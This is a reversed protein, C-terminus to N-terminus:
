LYGKQVCESYWPDSFDGKVEDCLIVEVEEQTLPTIEEDTQICTEVIEEVSAGQAILRDECNPTGRADEFTDQERQELSNNLSRESSPSPSNPPGSESNEQILSESGSAEKSPLDSKSFNTTSISIVSFIGLVLFSFLYSLDRVGKKFLRKDPVM